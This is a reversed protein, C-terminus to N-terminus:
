FCVEWAELCAQFLKLKPGVRFTERVAWDLSDTILGNRTDIGIFNMNRLYAAIQIVRVGSNFCLISTAVFFILIQDFNNLFHYTTGPEAIIALILCWSEIDM